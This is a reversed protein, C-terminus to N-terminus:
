GGHKYGLYFAMGVGIIGLALFFVNFFHARVGIKGALINGAEPLMSGIATSSLIIIIIIFAMSRSLDGM